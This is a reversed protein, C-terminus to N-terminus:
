PVDVGINIGIPIPVGCILACINGQNHAKPSSPSAAARSPTTKYERYNLSDQFDQLRGIQQM